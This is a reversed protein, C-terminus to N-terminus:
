RRSGLMLSAGLPDIGGGAQASLDEIRRHPLHRLCIACHRNRLGAQSRATRKEACPQVQLTPKCLLEYAASSMKMSKTPRRHADIERANAGAACAKASEVSEPDSMGFRWGRFGRDRWCLRSGAHLRDSGPISFM